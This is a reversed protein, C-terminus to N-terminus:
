SWTGDNLRRQVGSARMPCNNNTRQWGRSTLIDVTLVVATPNGPNGIRKVTYRTDGSKSHFTQGITFQATTM